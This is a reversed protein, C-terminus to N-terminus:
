AETDVRTSTLRGVGATSVLPVWTVSWTGRVLEYEADTPLYTSVIAGGGTELQMTQHPWIPALERGYAVDRLRVKGSQEDFTTEAILEPLGVLDAEAQAQDLTWGWLAGAPGLHGGESLYLSGPAGEVAAGSIALGIDLPVGRGDTRWAGGSLAVAAGRSPLSLEAIVREVLLGSGGTRTITVVLRRAEASAHAPLRWALVAGSEPVTPVSLTTDTTTWAGSSDLYQYGHSVELPRAEIKISAASAGGSGRLAVQLAIDEGLATRYARGNESQLTQAGTTAIFVGSGDPQPAPVTADSRRWSEGSVARAPAYADGRSVASGLMSALWDGGVAQGGIGALLGFTGPLGAALRALGAMDSDAGDFDGNRILRPLRGHSYRAWVTGAGRLRPQVDPRLMAAKEEAETVVVRPDFADSDDALAGPSSAADYRYRVMPQLELGGMTVKMVGLNPRQTVHWAGASQVITLHLAECLEAVLTEADSAYGSPGYRATETVFVQDLLDRGEVMTPAAWSASTYVDLGHGIARLAAVIAAAVSTGGGAITAIAPAPLTKLRALGCSATVIPDQGYDEAEPPRGELSPEVWGVFRVAGGLTVTMRAEYEDLGDLWSWLGGTGMVAPTEALSLRLTQPLFPRYVRERLGELVLRASDPGILVAVPSGAYGDEELAVVLTEGRDTTMTAQFRPAFAM